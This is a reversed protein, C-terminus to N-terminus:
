RSIWSSWPIRSSPISVSIARRWPSSLRTWSCLSLRSPSLQPRLVVVGADRFRKPFYELLFSAEVIVALIKAVPNGCAKLFGMPLLDETGPAKWAGQGQIIQKIKSYDCASSVEFRARGTEDAWTRDQIDSLDAPPSPFFRAALMAAKEKHTRATPPEGEAQSLPPLTVPDPRTHSRLRAWRELNWIKKNDASAEAVGRRWCARQANKITRKQNECAERMESFTLDSPTARYARQSSRAAAVADAVDRNWWAAAKGGNPKRKPASLDAIRQLQEVLSDVAIDLEEPSSIKRPFRINAAEAQALTKDLLSWSWGPPAEGTPREVGEIVIWQALHDSGAYGPDGQYSVGLGSTVWAHDITSDRNGRRSRTVEGWPTELTLRWRAALRLLVGAKESTRGARDWLPHHLNMDGVVVNRGEPEQESLRCLPSDWRRRRDYQESYISWVTVANEGAGFTVSCWDKGSKQSWTAVGHRKHIYLAARGSGYVSLYRGSRPCHISKPEPNVWPEQVAIVDYEEPDELALATNSKTGATNWYLVTVVM